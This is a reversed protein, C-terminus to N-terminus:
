LEKDDKYNDNDFWKLKERILEIDAKNFKNKVAKNFKNITSKNKLIIWYNFVKRKIYNMQMMGTKVLM